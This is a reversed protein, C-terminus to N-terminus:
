FSSPIKGLIQLSFWIVALLLLAASVPRAAPRRALAWLGVATVAAVASLVFTTYFVLSGGSPVGLGLLLGVGSVALWRHGAEPLMLVEFALYGVGIAAAAEVFRPVAPLALFLSATQSVALALAFAAAERRTRAAFGITFLLLLRAWGSFAQAVGDLAAPIPDQGGGFRLDADYVTGSFVQRAVEGNRRATLVHVHNAVLAQALRCIVRPAAPIATFKYTCVLEQGDPACTRSALTAGQIQYANDLSQEGATLEHAPVRLIMQAETGTIELQGSSLSVMHASLPVALLWLWARM